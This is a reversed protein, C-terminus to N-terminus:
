ATQLKLGKYSRAGGSGRCSQYGRDSLWRGLGRMNLWPPPDIAFVLKHWFTFATWIGAASVMEAASVLLRDAFFEGYVDSKERYEETAAKISLPIKLGVKNYVVAGGIMWNLIGPLEPVLVNEVFHVDRQDEPLSNEFPILVLRRWIGGDSGRVIPKHNTALLCKFRPTFTFFEKHLFRASIPEQQTIYKVTSEALRDNEDTESVFVARTGALRAIDNSQSRADRNVLLGPQAVSAYTGLVRRLAERVTSKGNAGCGQFIPLIEEQAHGIMSYGALRRMFDCRSQDGNMAWLLMKEFEPCTAVPDYEIPSFLLCLDGQETPRFQGTKLEIIGNAVQFLYPDADFEDLHIPVEPLRKFLTTVNDITKRQQLKLVLKLGSERRSYQGDSLASAAIGQIIEEYGGMFLSGDSDLRWRKGDWIVFCGREVLYRVSGATINKLYNALALETGETMEDLGDPYKAISRAISAVESDSL